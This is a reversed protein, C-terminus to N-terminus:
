DAEVLSDEELKSLVVVLPVRNIETTKTVRAAVFVADLVVEVEGGLDGGAKDIGAFFGELEDAIIIQPDKNVILEDKVEASSVSFKMRADCRVLASGSESASVRILILASESLLFACRERREIENGTLFVLKIDEVSLSM